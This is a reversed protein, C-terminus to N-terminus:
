QSLRRWMTILFILSLSSLTELKVNNKDHYFASTNIVSTISMMITIIIYIYLLLIIHFNCYSQVAMTITFIIAINFTIIIFSKLIVATTFLSFITNSYSVNQIKTIITMIIKIVITPVIRARIFRIIVLM